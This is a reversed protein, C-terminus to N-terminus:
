EPKEQHPVPIQALVEDVCVVSEGNPLEDVWIRFKVGKVEFVEGKDM